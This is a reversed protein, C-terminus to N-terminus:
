DKWEEKSIFRRWKMEREQDREEERKDRLEGWREREVSVEVGDL